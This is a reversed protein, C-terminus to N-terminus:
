VSTNLRLFQALAWRLAPLARDIEGKQASELVCTEMHGELLQLTIEDLARKVTALQVVLANCDTRKMLMGRIVEIHGRVRALRESLEREVEPRLYVAACDEGREKAKASEKHDDKSWKQWHTNELEM